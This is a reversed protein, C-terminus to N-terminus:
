EKKDRKFFKLVAPLFKSIVLAAGALQVFNTTFQYGDINFVSSPLFSGGFIVFIGSYMILNEIITNKKKAKQNAPNIYIKIQIANEFKEGEIKKRISKIFAQVDKSPSESIWLGCGISNNKLIYDVTDNIKRQWGDNIFMRVDTLNYYFGKDSYDTKSMEILDKKFDRRLEPTYNLNANEQLDWGISYSKAYIQKSRKIINM